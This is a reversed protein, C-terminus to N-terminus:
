LVQNRNLAAHSLSYPDSWGVKKKLQPLLKMHRSHYSTFPHIHHLSGYHLVFPTVDREQKIEIVAIHSNVIISLDKIKETGSFPVSDTPVTKPLHGGIVSTAGTSMRSIFFYHCITIIYSMPFQLFM